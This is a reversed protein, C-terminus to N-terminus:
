HCRSHCKFESILYLFTSLFILLKSNKKLFPSLWRVKILESFSSLSEYQQSKELNVDIIEEYAEQV